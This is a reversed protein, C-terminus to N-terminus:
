ESTTTTLVQASASTSSTVGSRPNAGDVALELSEIKVRSSLQENIRVLLETCRHSPVQLVAEPAGVEPWAESIDPLKLSLTQPMASVSITLALWVANRLPPM